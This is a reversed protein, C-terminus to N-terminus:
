GSPGSSSVATTASTRARPSGTRNSDTTKSGAPILRRYLRARTAASQEVVSPPGRTMDSAISAPSGYTVVDSVKPPAGAYTLSWFPRTHSGVAADIAFAMQCTSSWEPGYRGRSHARAFM